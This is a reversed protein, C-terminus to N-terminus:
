NKNAIRPGADWVCHADELNNIKIAKAPTKAKNKNVTTESLENRNTAANEPLVTAAAQDLSASIACMQVM